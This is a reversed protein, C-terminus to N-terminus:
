RRANRFTEQVELLPIYRAEELWKARLRDRRWEVVAMLGGIILVAWALLLVAFGLLRM